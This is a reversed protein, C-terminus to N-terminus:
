RGNREWSARVPFATFALVDTEAEELLALAQDSKGDIATCLERYQRHVADADPQEFVSRLM